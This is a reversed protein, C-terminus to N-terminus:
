SVNARGYIHHMETAEEAGCVHCRALEVGINGDIENLIEWAVALRSKM